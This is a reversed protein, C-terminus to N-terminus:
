PLNIELPIIEFDEKRRDAVPIISIDEYYDSEWDNGPHGPSMGRSAVYKGHCYTSIYIKASRESRFLRAQNSDPHPSVHSGGRGNRGTPDPLYYGTPKHKVAWRKM